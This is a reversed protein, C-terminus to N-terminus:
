NGIGLGLRSNGTIPRDDLYQEEFFAYLCSKMECRRKLGLTEPLILRIRKLVLCSPGHIRRPRGRAPRPLQEVYGDRAMM